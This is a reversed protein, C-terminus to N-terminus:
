GARCRDGARAPLGAPGRLAGCLRRPGPHVAGHRVDAGLAAGLGHVRRRRQVAGGAGLGRGWGPTWPTSSAASIAGATRCAAPSGEGGLHEALAPEMYISPFMLWQLYRGRDAHNLPPALGAEPMRDAIWACIVASDAIATGDQELVPVKGMPNLARFAPDDQGGERIDVLVREYAAGAEELM